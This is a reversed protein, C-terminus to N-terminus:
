NSTPQRRIILRQIHHFTNTKISLLYIGEPLNDVRLETAYGAMNKRRVVEGTISRLKIAGEVIESSQIRVLDNAPNPFINLSEQTHIIDTTNLSVPKLTDGYNIYLSDEAVLREHMYLHFQHWGNSLFFFANGDENTFKTTNDVVIKANELPNGNNTIYFHATYKYPSLEIDKHINSSKLMLSGSQTIYGEASITYQIEENAKLDNIIVIGEKNSHKEQKDNIVVSAGEIPHNDEIIRLVANYVRDLHVTLIPNQGITIEHTQTKYGEASIQVECVEGVYCNRVKAQGDKNTEVTGRLLVEIDAGEIPQNQDDYVYTILTIPEKEEILAKWGFKQISQDSQFSFNIATGQSRSRVVPPTTEGCAPLMMTGESDNAELFDYCGSLSSETHYNMFQAVLINDENKPIFSINYDENSEYHNNEGGSDYFWVADVQHTGEKDITITPVQNIILEVPEQFQYQLNSGGAFRLNLTDSHDYPIDSNDILLKFAILISAGSAMSSYSLQSTLLQAYHSANTTALEFRLQEINSHGTNKITLQLTIEEGREAINDGDAKQQDNIVVGEMLQINPARLKVQHTEEIVYSNGEADESIIEFALNVKELDPISDAVNITFNVTQVEGPPIRTSRRDDGSHMLSSSSFQLTTAVVSAENTPSNNKLGVSLTYATNYNLDRQENGDQDKWTLDEITIYPEERVLTIEATYPVRNPKTVVLKYPYAGSLGETNFTVTGNAPAYFSEILEGQRSLAVLANAEATVTLTTEDEQLLTPHHIEMESPKGLYPAYAPDGFLHYIEWYYQKLKSNSSEVQLNGARVLQGLTNAWRDRNETTSYFLGDFMGTGSKEFTPTSTIQNTLGVAWWYDEDWYTYNSGGIYGAAGKDPSQLLLEGFSDNHDFKSSLCCNGILIPYKDKNRLNRVHNNVMMPNSWGNYNCHATYNGFGIGENIKTLIESSADPSDSNYQEQAKNYFYNYSQYGKESTFYESSAYYVAGNGYTPAYTADVGAILLSKELFDYNELTLQELQMTKELQVSLEEETEASFRGYYVDPLKDNTYDFYYLDTVHGEEENQYAPIQAIDGVLVVYTPQIDDEPYQYLRNLFSQITEKNTGIRPDDTYYDEVIFGREKKWRIFPKLTEKFMPDAMIVYKVEAREQQEQEAKEPKIDTSLTPLNLTFLRERKAAQPKATSDDQAIFKLSLQINNKILLEGTIPNYEFPNVKLLGIQQNRLRGQHSFVAFEPQYFQDQSYLRQNIQWALSDPIDRSKPQPLQAPMIQTELGHEHLSILQENFGHIVIQVSFGEPIEVLQNLTPLSPQGIDFDKKLGAGEIQLYPEGYINYVQHFSLEPVRFEFSLSHESPRAKFTTAKKDAAGLMIKYAPQATVHISLFLLGVLYTTFRKM